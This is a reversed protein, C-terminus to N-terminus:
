LVPDHSQGLPGTTLIKGELAPPAPEIGPWPVLIGCEEHCFVFDYFLCLTTVFEIFDKLITWTLFCVKFFLYFLNM